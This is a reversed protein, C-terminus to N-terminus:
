KQLFYTLCEDSQLAELRQVMFQNISRLLLDLKKETDIKFSLNSHDIGNNIKQYNKFSKETKKIKTNKKIM